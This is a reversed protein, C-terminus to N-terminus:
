ENEDNTIEDSEIQQTAKEENIVEMVDKPKVPEETIEEETTSKTPQTNTENGMPTIVRGFMTIELKQIARQYQEITLKGNNLNKKLIEIRKYYLYDEGASIHLPNRKFDTISRSKYSLDRSVKNMLPNARHNILDNKRYNHKNFTTAQLNAQM